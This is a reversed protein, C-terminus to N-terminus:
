LNQIPVFLLILGRVNAGGGFCLQGISRAARQGREHILRLSSVGAAVFMDVCAASRRDPIAGFRFRTSERAHGRPVVLALLERCISAPCSRPDREFACSFSSFRDIRVLNEIKNDFENSLRLPSGTIHIHLTKM